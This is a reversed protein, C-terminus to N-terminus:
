KKIVRTHALRDHWALGRSSFLAMTFGLFCPAASLYKAAYRGTARFFSLREGQVDTVKLRMWQKGVTAQWRSCELLAAYLWSGGFAVLLLLDQFHSRLLMWEQRMTEGDTHEAWGHIQVTLAGFGFLFFIPLFLVGCDIAFAFFRPLFSAPKLIARPIEVPSPSSLKIEAIPFPAAPPEPVRKPQVPLVPPRAPVPPLITGLDMTGPPPPMPALTPVPPLISGRDVYDLVEGLPLWERLGPTHALYQLTFDGRVLGDKIQVRSFPGWPVNNKLVTIAV